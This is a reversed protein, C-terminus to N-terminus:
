RRMRHLGYAISGGIMGAFLLDLDPGVLHNMVPALMVGLGIAVGDMMRRVGAVLSLAFFLPTLFLFGAALFTPLSASLGFGLGTLATSVLICANAFGFFYPVRDRRPMAPLRRHSEIWTSVVVYHALLLQLGFGQGRRRLLPLISVGMPLLRMSTLSVALAISVLAAGTALGGFLVFQAPGAWILPTAMVTAWFPMGIEHALSGVGLMAFGVVWAPLLVADRAGRGFM